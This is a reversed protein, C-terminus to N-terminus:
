HKKLTLTNNKRSKRRSFANPLFPLAPAVVFLVFGMEYIYIVPNIFGFLIFLIQATLLFRYYPHNSYFKLQKRFNLYIVAFLPLSGFLGYYALIDFWGSHGGVKSNFADGFPGYIGFLPNRLFTELSSLYLQARGSTQTGFSESIFGQALDLFKTSLVNNSEFLNAVDILFYGIIEKPFLLIFLSGLIISFTFSKKGKIMVAIMTGIFLLLLSTTYSASILMTTIVLFVILCFYRYVMKVEPANRVIFYLLLINIFVASYVFSFGGIGLSLYIESQPDNGTALGRSAFPYKKMGFYTQISAIFYFTITFFAIKGLVLDNKNFYMYYYNLFIGVIFLIFSTLVFTVHLEGYFFNGTLIYPFFILIWVIGMLLDLSIGKIWRFDTTFFWATFFVLFPLIGLKYNLYPWSIWSCLFIMIWNNIM